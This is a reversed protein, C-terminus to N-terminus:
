ICLPGCVAVMVITSMMAMGTAGAMVIDTEKTSM